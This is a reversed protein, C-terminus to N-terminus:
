SEGDKANSCRWWSIKEGKQGKLSESVRQNPNGPLNDVAVKWTIVSDERWCGWCINLCGRSLHLPVFPGASQLWVSRQTFWPCTTEGTQTDTFYPYYCRLELTAMGILHLPIHTFLWPGWHCHQIRNQRSFLRGRSGTSSVAEWISPGLRNSLFLLLALDPDWCAWSSTPRAAPRERVKWSWGKDVQRKRKHQGEPTLPFHRVLEGSVWLNMLGVHHSQQWGGGMRFCDDRLYAVDSCLEEKGERNWYWQRWSSQLTFNIM